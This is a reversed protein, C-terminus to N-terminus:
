DKIVNEITELDKKRRTVNSSPIRILLLHGRISSCAMFSVKSDQRMMKKTLGLRWNGALDM